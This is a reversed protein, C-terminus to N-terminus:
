TFVLIFSICLTCVHRDVSIMGFTMIFQLSTSKLFFHMFNPFSIINQRHYHVSHTIIFYNLVGFFFFWGFGVGFVSTFSSSFLFVIFDVFIPLVIRIFFFFHGPGGSKLYIIFSCYVFYYSVLMVSLSSLCM